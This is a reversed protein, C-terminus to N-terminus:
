GEWAADIKLRLSNVSLTKIGDRDVEMEFRIERMLRGFCFSDAVSELKMHKTAVLNDAYAYDIRYVAKLFILFPAIFDQLFLITGPFSLNVPYEDTLSIGQYFGQQVKYAALYFYYLLSSRDGEFHTFYWIVGDNEFWARSSTKNCAICSKNYISTQVEWSLPTKKNNRTESIHIKRGPVLNFANKLLPNVEINIVIQGKEPVNFSRFAFGNKGKLIYHSFPYDITQSGIYPTAQLQLHLHPVPSRGSNGCRAIIQGQKVQEGRKVTISKSKLHSLKSYLGEGHKIIITNGWNNLLDVQGIQNDEIGDNIDEVTGDAPALVAKDYCYYDSCEDGEGRFSRGQDDFIEFDLAHRWEGKHTHEGNYAQTVTWEGFFPLKIKVAPSRAFRESANRFAYLNKEPSNYQYFVTHLNNGNRIRFKLVYLFLLVMINFPLSYVPLYFIAFVSSLSMTLLAVLPILFIVWLYSSRGPIVFFGGIAISTLIYNFGIYSYNIENLDAGVVEYFLFASYFGLLSLTFAIRSYYLLGAAIIVGSLINFQFFIAGLSIFYVHLSTYAPLRHWWEYLSILTSGGLQYLENLTYVGRQSVGLATLDRTALTVIWISIIFPISLYPLVYKGIVGEASISIFLTLVSALLVILFLQWGPAFYIGLGLGVLLSNFGYIGRAIIYKNFGLYLGIGNTFMVSVLGFFGAFPDVFTVGLLIISFLRKDSFFVQSYSNLVGKLFLEPDEGRFLGPLLTPSVM